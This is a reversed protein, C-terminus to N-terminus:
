NSLNLTSTSSPHLLVRYLQAGIWKFKCYCSLLCCYSFAQLLLSNDGSDSDSDGDFRSRLRKQFQRSESAIRCFRSEPDWFRRLIWGGFRTLIATSDASQSGRIKVPSHHYALFLSGEWFLSSEVVVCDLVVFIRIISEYLTNQGSLHLEM